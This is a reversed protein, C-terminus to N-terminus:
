DAKPMPCPLEEAKGWSELWRVVEAHPIVRGAAIDAEAAADAAREAEQDLDFVHQRRNMSVEGAEVM